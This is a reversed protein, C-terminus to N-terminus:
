LHTTLCAFCIEDFDTPVMKVGQGELVTFHPAEVMSKKQMALVNCDRGLFKWSVSIKM